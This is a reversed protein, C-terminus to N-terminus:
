IIAGVLLEVETLANKDLGNGDGVMAHIELLGFGEVHRPIM